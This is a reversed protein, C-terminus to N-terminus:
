VRSAKSAILLFDERTLKENVSFFQIVMQLVTRPNAQGIEAELRADESLGSTLISVATEETLRSILYDLNVQQGPDLEKFQIGMGLFPYSVVVTGLARIPIGESELGLNAVTGVPFTCSMEVYCGLLSVDVLNGWMRVDSGMTRFEVTGSCRYRPSGRRDPAALVDQKSQANAPSAPGCQNSQGADDEAGSTPISDSQGSFTNDVFSRGGITGRAMGM